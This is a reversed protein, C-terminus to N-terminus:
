ISTSLHLAPDILLAVATTNAGVAGAVDCTAVDLYLLYVFVDILVSCECKIRRRLGHLYLAFKSEM